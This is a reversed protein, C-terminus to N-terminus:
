AMARSLIIIYIIIKHQNILFQVSRCTTLIEKCLWKSMKLWLYSKSICMSLIVVRLVLMNVKLHRPVFLAHHLYTVVNFTTFHRM